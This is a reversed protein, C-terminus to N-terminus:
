NGEKNIGFADWLRDRNQNKIRRERVDKYAKARYVARREETREESRDLAYRILWSICYAETLSLSAILIYSLEKMPNQAGKMKM